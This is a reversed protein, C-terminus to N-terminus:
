LNWDEAAILHWSTPTPSAKNSQWYKQALNEREPLDIVLDKFPKLARQQWTVFNHNTAYDNFNNKLRWEAWLQADDSTLPKLSIQNVALKEFRGFQKLEPQEFIYDGQMSQREQEVTNEFEIALTQNEEDWDEWWDENILLEQWIDRYDIVPAEIDQNIKKNNVHGILKLSKQSVNWEIQLKQNDKVEAKPKLNDFRIQHKGLCPHDISGEIDNIWSPLEGFKREKNKDFVDDSARPEKFSEVSM